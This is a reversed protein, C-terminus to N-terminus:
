EGPTRPCHLSRRFSIVDRVIPQFACDRTVLSHPIVEHDIEHVPSSMTASCLYIGSSIVNTDVPAQSISITLRGSRPLYSNSRASSRIGNPSSSAQDNTCATTAGSPSSSHSLRYSLIAYILNAHLLGSRTLQALEHQYSPYSTTPWDPKNPLELEYTISRRSLTARLFFIIIFYFIIVCSYFM